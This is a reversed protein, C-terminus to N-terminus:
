VQVFDPKIIHFRDNIRAKLIDPMEFIKKEFFETVADSFEKFTAYYRNYTVNERLIKWLREISNLNPSYPPLFVIEVRGGLKLIFDMVKHSRHYGAQDMILYLKKKSEYHILLTNIFHIIADADIKEYDRTLVNVGTLRNLEVSGLYHCRKQKATTAIAKDSGKFIWGHVAQTQHDPHVGDLFLIVEDSTLANKLKEYREIFEQQKGTDLKAPCKRPKKYVFHLSALLQYLGTRSYSVGYQKEIWCIIEKGYLYTKAKLHSALEKKQSASLYGSRGGPTDNKLKRKEMYEHVYKSITGKSIRCCRAIEEYTLGDAISLLVQARLGDEYRIKRQKLLQELQVRDSPLLKFLESMKIDKKKPV